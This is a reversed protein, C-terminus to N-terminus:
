YLGGIESDATLHAEGSPLPESIWQEDAHSGSRGYLLPLVSCRARGQANRDCWQFRRAVSKALELRGFHILVFILFYRYVVALIGREQYRRASTSLRPKSVFRVRGRTRLRLALVTDEGYFQFDPDVGGALRLASTRVAITSGILVEPRGTRRLFLNVAPNLISQFIANGLNDITRGDHFGFAASLGVLGPDRDFHDVIAQAGGEPFRTDADVYILVEGRAADLGAQRAFALGPRPECVVQAGNRAAREATADTSGNDVVIIERGVDIRQRRLSQICEAIHAEENRAPIVFSVRPGCKVRPSNTSLRPVSRAGSLGM